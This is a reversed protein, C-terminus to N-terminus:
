RLDFPFFRVQAKNYFVENKKHMLIEAEGEKIIKYEDIDFSATEPASTHHNDEDGMKEDVGAMDRASLQKAAASPHGIHLNSSEAGQLATFFVDFKHGLNSVQFQM